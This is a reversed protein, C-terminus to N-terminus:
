KMDKLLDNEKLFIAFDQDMNSIHEVFWHLVVAEVLRLAEPSKPNKLVYEKIKIVSDRFDNHTKCHEKLHPYKFRNMYEEETQFHKFTYRHLFTALGLLEDYSGASHIATLLEEIKNVLQRHQADIIPVGTELDQSWLRKGPKWPDEQTKM